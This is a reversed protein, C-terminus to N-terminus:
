EWTTRDWTINDWTINAWNIGHYFPDRWIGALPIGQMMPRVTNAFSDSPTLGRNAQPAGLSNVAAYADILGAGASDVDAGLQPHATQTLIGKLQNPKLNRRSQLMLAATGAVVPTAMSTGSMRIYFLDTIRDAFM